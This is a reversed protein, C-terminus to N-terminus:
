KSESAGLDLHRSSSEQASPSTVSHFSLQGWPLLSPLPLLCSGHWGRGPHSLTQARVSKPGLANLLLWKEGMEDKKEEEM